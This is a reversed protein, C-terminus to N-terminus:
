LSRIIESSKIDYQADSILSKERLARLESLRSELSASGSPVAIFTIDNTKLIDSVFTLEPRNLLDDSFDSQHDVIYIKLLTIAVTSLPILRMCDCLKEVYFDITQPRIPRSLAKLQILMFAIAADYENLGSEHAGRTAKNFAEQHSGPTDVTYHMELKLIALTKARFVVLASFEALSSKSHDMTSYIQQTGGPKSIARSIFCGLFLEGMAALGWVIETHYGWVLSIAAIYFIRGDLRPVRGIFLGIVTFIIFYKIM